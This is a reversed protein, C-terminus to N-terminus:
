ATILQPAGEKSAAVTFPPPFPQWERGGRTPQFTPLLPAIFLLSIPDILKPRTHHKKGSLGYLCIEKKKLVQFIFIFLAKDLIFKLATL